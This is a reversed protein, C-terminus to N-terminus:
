SRVSLFAESYLLQTSCATTGARQRAYQVLVGASLAILLLWPLLIAQNMHRLSGTLSDTRRRTSNRSQDEEDGSSEFMLPETSDKLELDRDYHM